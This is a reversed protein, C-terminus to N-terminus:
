IAPSFAEGNKLVSLKPFLKLMRKVIVDCFKPDLEILRAVRGTHHCAVMTTGSGGFGDLVIAQPKSSNLLVKKVLEVPKMTPHEGSKQPRDIFWCSSQNRGGYWAHEAGGKWGYLIPESQNQYDCRGMVFSNKVWCLTQKLLWGAKVLMTRFSIGESESFCVYIPCGAKAFRHSALYFALLFRKFEDGGMSDNKIIGAKGEYAVNYPPDTFVLDTKEDGLLAKYTNFSTADGCILRHEGITYIDGEQTFPEITTPDEDGMLDLDLESLAFLETEEDVAILAKALDSADFGLNSLLDTGDALASLEEILKKDDWQSLEGLKNDALRYATIQEDSLHGAVLVPVQKLGLQKAAEFRVHGVIIVSLTDTVIPQNFGFQEISHAVASVTTADFTRPNNAYPKIQSIDILKIKM